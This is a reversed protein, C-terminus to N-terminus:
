LPIRWFERKGMGRVKGFRVWRECRSTEEKPFVERRRGICGQLAHRTINEPCGANKARMKLSAVFKINVQTIIGKIDTEEDLSGLSWLALISGEEAGNKEESFM